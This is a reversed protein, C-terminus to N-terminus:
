ALTSFDASIPRNVGWMTGFGFGIRTSELSSGAVKIPGQKVDTAERFQDVYPRALIAADIREGYLEIRWAPEPQSCRPCRPDLLAV